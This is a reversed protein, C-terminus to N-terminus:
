KKQQALWAVLAALEEDSGTFAKAHPRDDLTVQKKLYKVAWEGGREAVRGGLDPGRMRESKTTAEIAAVGVSHCLNCKQTLFIAKGDLSPAAAFAQGGAGGYFLAAALPAAFVLALAATDGLRSSKISRM